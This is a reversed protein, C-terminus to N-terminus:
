ITFGGHSPLKTIPKHQPLNENKFLVANKLANEGYKNRVTAVALDIKKQREIKIDTGFLDSQVPGGEPQLGFVRVTVARLPMEWAYRQRFLKYAAEAILKPSQLAYETKQQFEIKQLSNKKICVQIGKCEMQYSRLKEGIQQSLELMVCWVQHDNTLDRVTTVGHGISQIPFAYDSPMVASHESGNAYEWLEEGHKGFHAQLYEKPFQALQGITRIGLKQLKPYTARGVGLLSEVPLGWVKMKFDDSGIVTVADPKKMDSGLKAFVKNFSVGVSITLGMESKVSRRIMDAIKEGSGFLRVSKTVDLWCEDMGFPEVQDTYRGYIEMARQSYKIYEDFHPHVVVLDPCVSKAQWIAQGTQVGKLKAKQNKALVIGHREATNGCVAVYLEKISPNNKCEVSAYFNNMDCHLIVREM